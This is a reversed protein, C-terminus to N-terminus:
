RGGGSLLAHVEANNRVVLTRTPMHFYLTGAGGNAKWTDPEISNQITEIFQSANQALQAQDIGPFLLAALGLTDATDVLDGLYYTRTVLTERAKMQTTIQIAQDKIVYALGYQKLVSQLLTRVTM